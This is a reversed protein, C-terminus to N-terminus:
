CACRFPPMETRYQGGPAQKATVVEFCEWLKESYNNWGYPTDFGLYYGDNESGEVHAELFHLLQHYGCCYWYDDGRCEGPKRAGDEDAYRYDWNFEDDKMAFERLWKEAAEFKRQRDAEEHDGQEDLWDAYIYRHSYNNPEREIADLFAEQVDSM